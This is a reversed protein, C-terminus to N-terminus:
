KGRKAFDILETCYALKQFNEEDDYLAQFMGATESAAIFAGKIQATSGDFLTATLNVGKQAAAATVSAPAAVSRIYGGADEPNNATLGAYGAGIASALSGSDNYTWSWAAYGYRRLYDANKVSILEAALINDIFANHPSMRRLFDSKSLSDLFGRPIDPMHEALVPLLNEYFTIFVLRNRLDPYKEAESKLAAVLEADNAKLEIIMLKESYREERLIELMESLFPIQSTGALMANDVLKYKRIEAATMGSIRGTGNTTRDLTPDHMVIIKGDSSLHVDIEAHTAGAEFAARVGEISNENYKHPYGRHGAIYSPRIVTEARFLSLANKAATVSSCVIGYCGSLTAACIDSESANAYAWVLVARAQIQEVAARTANSGLLVVQAGAACAEGALSFGAGAETLDKERADYVGRVASYKERLATILEAKDSVAFFDEAGSESLYAAVTQVDAASQLRVAPVANGCAKHAEEISPESEGLSFMIVDAGAAAAFSGGASVDVVVSPAATMKVTGDAKEPTFSVSSDACACLLLCFSLILSVFIKKM